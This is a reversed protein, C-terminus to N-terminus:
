KLCIATAFLKGGGAQYGGYKLNILQPSTMDTPQVDPVNAELTLWSARKELNKLTM